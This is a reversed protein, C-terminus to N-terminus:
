QKQSNKLYRFFTRESMHCRALAEELSLEGRQWADSVRSFNKPISKKPRGFSQGRARAAAIGQAQRARINERETEAVFSLIELVIDALFMGMLDKGRRTDLLPMDLVAIDVEKEHTLYRWQERIEEYNRGLRDISQVYLLDGKKLLKVMREWGPRSFNKGSQWDRFIQRETLGMEKMRIMQRVENQDISSVRVYGYESM